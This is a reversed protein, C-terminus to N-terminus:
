STCATKSKEDVKKMLVKLRAYLLPEGVKVKVKMPKKDSNKLNM